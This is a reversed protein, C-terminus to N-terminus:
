SRPKNRRKERKKRAKNTLPVSQREKSAKGQRVDVGEPPKASVGIREAARASLPRVFVRGPERTRMGERVQTVKVEALYIEVEDECLGALSPYHEISEVDAVVHPPFEGEVYQRVYSRELPHEQFYQRDLDCAAEQATAHPEQPLVVKSAIDNEAKDFPPVSSKAKREDYEFRARRAALFGAELRKSDVCHRTIECSCTPFFDLLSWILSVAGCSYCESWHTPTTVLYGHHVFIVSAPISERAWVMKQYTGSLVNGLLECTQQHVDGRNTTQSQKRITTSEGAVFVTFAECVDIVPDSVQKQFIPHQKHFPWFTVGTTTSSIEGAFVHVPKGTERSLVGAKYWAGGKDEFDDEPSEGKIEVWCQQRPLWFDPLYWTGGLDFGEKEYVYPVGLTDFFV